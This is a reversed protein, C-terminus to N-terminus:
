FILRLVLFANNWIISPKLLLIWSFVINLKTL